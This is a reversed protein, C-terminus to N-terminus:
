LYIPCTHLSCYIKISLIFGERVVLDEQPYVQQYSPFELLKFGCKGLKEM